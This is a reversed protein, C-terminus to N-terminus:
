LDLIALSEDRAEAFEDPKAQGRLALGVADKHELVMRDKYSKKLMTRQTATLDPSLTITQALSVMNAKASRYADKTGQGAESVVKDWLPAFPLTDLDDRLNKIPTVVSYLVFDFKRYPTAEAKSKGQMLRNGIVWLTQPDVNPEDILAFSSPVFPIGANPDFPQRLGILPTTGNLRLLTNFGQLVIEAVNAYPSLLPSFDLVKATSEIVQLLESAYNGVSLQCLVVSLKLGGGRYPFTGSVSTDKFIMGPPAKEGGFQNLLSPGVIFPVVLDKKNYTFESVVFVLPDIQTFWKRKHALFMENIVVHFYHQDREFPQGLQDKQDGHDDPIRVTSPLQSKSQVVQQSILDTVTKWLVAVDAM